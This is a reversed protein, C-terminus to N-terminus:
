QIQKLLGSVVDTHTWYASHATLPLISTRVNHDEVETYPPALPSAIPDTPSHFNLWADVNGPRTSPRGHRGVFISKGLPSGMTSLLAVRGPPTGGEWAHLSDFAIVSGLSHAIVFTKDANKASWDLAERLRQQIRGREARSLFEYQVIPGVFGRAAAYENRLQTEDQSPSRSALARLEAADIEALLAQEAARQEQDAAGPAQRLMSGLDSWLVEIFHLAQDGVKLADQIPKSYGANQNGVGHIIIVAKAVRTAPIDRNAPPEKGDRCAGFMMAIGVALAFWRLRSALRTM